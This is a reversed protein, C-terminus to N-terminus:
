KQGEAGVTTTAAATHLGVLNSETAALAKHLIIWSWNWVQWVPKDWESSWRGGHVIATTMMAMGSTHPPAPLLEHGM